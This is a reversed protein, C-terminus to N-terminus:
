RATLAFLGLLVPAAILAVMMAVALPNGLNFTYGLGSRRPVLVAPDDRDVYFIGARWAAPNRLPSRPLKRVMLWTGALLALTGAFSVAVLPVLVSGASIAAGLVGCCAFACFYEGALAIKLSPARMATRPALYVVGLQIAFLLACLALGLLLPTAASSPTRSVFRDPDFGHNWHVPLRSPLRDWSAYLWIAGAALILFPGVQGLGGGPLREAGPELSAERVDKM